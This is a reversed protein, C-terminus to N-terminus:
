LARGDAPLALAVRFEGDVLLDLARPRRRRGAATVAPAPLFTWLIGADTAVERAYHAPDAASDGQPTIHTRV